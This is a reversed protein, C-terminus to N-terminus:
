DHDFWTLTPERAVKEALTAMDLGEGLVHIRAGAPLRSALQPRLGSAEPYLVLTDDQAVCGLLQELASLTNCIGVLHIM